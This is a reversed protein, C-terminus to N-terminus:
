NDETRDERVPPTWKQFGRSQITGKPRIIGLHKKRTREIKATTSREDATKIKHPETLAPAMNQERHEGGAKLPKIHEVEWTEGAMIKRGTIHCFGNHRDFVRLRVRPPVPDDASRGIWEEVARGTLAGSAPLKM